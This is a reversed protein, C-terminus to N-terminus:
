PQVLVLGNGDRDIFEAQLMGQPQPRPPTIFTVGRERLRRYTAAIDPTGLIVGAFQGAPRPRGDRTLTLSRAAGPPAVEILRDNAGTRREFGLANVYFDIASAPDSVPVLSNAAYVLM